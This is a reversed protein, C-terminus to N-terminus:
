DYASLIPVGRELQNILLQHSRAAAWRAGEHLKTGDIAWCAGIRLDGVPLENERCILRVLFCARRCRYTAM